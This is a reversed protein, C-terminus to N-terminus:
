KEECKLEGDCGFSVDCDHLMITKMRKRARHLRVKATSVTTKIQDAIDQLNMKEFYHLYLIHSYQEPLTNVKEIICGKQEKETALQEPSESREDVLNEFFGDETTTEKKRRYHDAITNSVIRFVWSSFGSEGRFTEHKNFIKELSEQVIDEVDEPRAIRRVYAAIRPRYSVAIDVLNAKENSLNETLQIEEITQNTM